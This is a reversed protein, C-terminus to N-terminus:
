LRKFSANLIGVIQPLNHEIMLRLIISKYKRKHKKKACEFRNELYIYYHVCMWQMTRNIIQAISCNSMFVYSIVTLPNTLSKWSFTSVSLIYNITYINSLILSKFYIKSICSWLPKTFLKVDSCLRFYHGSEIAGKFSIDGSVWMNIRVKFTNIPWCICIFYDAGSPRLQRCPWATTTRSRQLLITSYSKQM